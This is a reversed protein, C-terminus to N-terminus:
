AAPIAEQPTMRQSPVDRILHRAPSVDTYFKGELRRPHVVVVVVVDHRFLLFISLVQYDGVRKMHYM